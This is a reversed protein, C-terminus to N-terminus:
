DWASTDQAYACKNDVALRNEKMVEEKEEEFSLIDPEDKPDM